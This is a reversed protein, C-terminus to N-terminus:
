KQIDDKYFFKIIYNLVSYRITLYTILFWLLDGILKILDKGYSNIFFFLPITLAFGWLADQSNTLIFRYLLGIIFGLIFIAIHMYFPGYDAYFEAMYGTSISTGKKSTAVYIGTLEMTHKSDDIAPKNPFLIRPKIVHNIARTTNYGNFFNKYTPIYRITASFYELYFLRKILAKQGFYFRQKDFTTTYSFFKKLADTKSVVVKQARRGGSLYMRYDQKIYSWYVGLFFILIGAVLIIALQTPTIKKITLYAIPFIFFYNKFDSFYSAFSILIGYSFLLWFLLKYKNTKFVTIVILFFISWRFFKLIYFFQSLGAISFRIKNFLFDTLPAYISFAVMLKIIDLKEVSNPSIKINIVKGTGLKIGISLFFLGIISYWFATFINDYSYYPRWLLDKIDHGTFACYFIGITVSLWAMILGFLITPPHGEKWFLLFFIYFVILSIFIMTFYYSFISLFLVLLISIKVFLPIKNTQYISNM